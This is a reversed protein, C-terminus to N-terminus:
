NGRDVPVYLRGGKEAYAMGRVSASGVAFQEVRGNLRGDAELGFLHVLKGGGVAVLNQRTLVVPAGFLQGGKVTAVQPLLSIYGDAHALQFLRPTGQMALYVAPQVPHGGLVCAGVHELTNFWVQRLGGRQFDASMCGSYGGMMMAEAGAVWGAGSPYYRHTRKRQLSAVTRAFRSTLLKPKEPRDKKKGADVEDADVPMGREDLAYYAIGAEDWTGGVSNPLFLMRGAADLGVTGGSLGCHFGAGHAATEVLELGAPKVAYILLHDFELWDKFGPHAEQKDQAPAAIDQWVYLVPLRPHFLLGLPYNGNTALVAPKPLALRAPEGAIRGGADLRFVSLHQGNTGQHGVVLLSAAESVAACLARPAVVPTVFAPVEPLVVPTVEFERPLVAALVEGALFLAGLGVWWGRSGTQFSPPTPRRPIKTQPLAARASCGRLPSHRGPWRLGLGFSGGCRGVWNEFRSRAGRWRGGIIRRGWGAVAVRLNM